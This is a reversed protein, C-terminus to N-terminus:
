TMRHQGHEHRDRMVAVQHLPHRSRIPDEGDVTVEDHRELTVILGQLDGRCIGVDVGRCDHNSFSLLDGRSVNGDRRLLV